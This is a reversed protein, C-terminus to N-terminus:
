FEELDYGWIRAFHEITKKDSGDPIDSWTIGPGAPHKNHDTPIRQFARELLREDVDVGIKGAIMRVLEPDVDELRWTMNADLEDIRRYWDAVFRVADTLDDGTMAVHQAKFGYYPGTRHDFLEGNLLSRLVLIPHRTQHFILGDYSDLQPVAVWSADGMLHPTHIGTPNWWQEHGCRVGAETLINSIYGTGSRGTGVIAFRPEDAGQHDFQWEDLYVRKLHSTQVSTNVHVPFGCQQVRVCFSLDESLVGAIPHATHSWWVEGGHERVSELVSRHILICAAGTGDVKCLANRPYDEIASFGAYGPYEVFRYITPQLQYRYAGLGTKGTARKYTFCLGGMVPRETPDASELLRAVTDREFGMDTDVMFLWEADTHDLFAKTIENRGAALDVGCENPLHARIQGETAQDWLLMDVLSVHFSGTIGGDSPHLYGVAVSM